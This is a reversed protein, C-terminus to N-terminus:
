PRTCGGCTPSTGPPSLMHPGLSPCLWGGAGCWVWPAVPCAPRRGWLPRPSPQSVLEPHLLSQRAHDSTVSLGCWRGHAAPGRVTGTPLLVGHSSPALGHPLSCSCVTRTDGCTGLGLSAPLQRCRLLASPSCAARASCPACLRCLPQCGRGGCVARTLRRASRRCCSDHCVSSGEHMPAVGIARPANGWLCCGLEGWGPVRCGALALSVPEGVGQWSCSPAPPLSLSLSLLPSRRTHVALGRLAHQRPAGDRALAPRWLSGVGGGVWRRWLPSSLAGPSSSGRRLALVSSTSGPGRRCGGPRPPCPHGPICPAPPVPHCCTPGYPKM